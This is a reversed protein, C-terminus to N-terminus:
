DLHMSTFMADAILKGDQNTLEVMNVSTKRGTKRNTVTATLVDGAKAPRYYRMSGDMGVSNRGVCIDHAAVAQDCITYLIGGHAGGHANLHHETIEVTLTIKGDKITVNELGLYKIAGGCKSLEEELISLDLNEM